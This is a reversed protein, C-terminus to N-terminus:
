TTLFQWNSGVNRITSEIIVKTCFLRSIVDYNVSLQLKIM